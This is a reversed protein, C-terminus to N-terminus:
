AAAAEPGHPANYAPKVSAPLRLRELRDQTLAHLWAARTLEFDDVEVPGGRAPADLMSIGTHTFGAKELVRRSAPNITRSSARIPGYGSGTFVAGALGKLAETMLGRGQHAEGLLYGAALAGGATEGETETVGILGILQDPLKKRTIALILADGDTNSERARLVRWDAEDEPLPHPWTATMEAVAAVNAIQQLARADAARPWRLWLRPTEILFVDDRFLDPFPM